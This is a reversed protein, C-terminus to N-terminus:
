LDLSVAVCASSHDHQVSAAPTVLLGHDRPSHMTRLSWCCTNSGIRGAAMRSNALLVSWGVAYWHRYARLMM